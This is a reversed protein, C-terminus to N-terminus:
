FFLLLLYFTMAARLKLTISVNFRELAVSVNNVDVRQQKNCLWTGVCYVSRADATGSTITTLLLM